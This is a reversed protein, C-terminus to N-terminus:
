QRHGGRQRLELRRATRRTPTSESTPWAAAAASRVTGSIHGALALTASIDATTKGATVAVANATGLDPESNYYQTLYAGSYDQFELRYSGSALGGLDYAATAKTEM